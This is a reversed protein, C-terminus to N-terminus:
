FRPTANHAAARSAHHQTEQKRARAYLHDHQLLMLVEQAIEAAVGDM